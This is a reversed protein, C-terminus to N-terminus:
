KKYPDLYTIGGHNDVVKQTISKLFLIDIASATKIAEENWVYRENVLHVYIANNPVIMHNPVTKFALIFDINALREKEVIKSYSLGSPDKELKGTGFINGVGYEKDMDITTIAKRENTIHNIVHDVKGFAM